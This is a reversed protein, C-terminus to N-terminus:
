ILRLWAGGSTDSLQLLILSLSPRCWLVSYRVCTTPRQISFKGVMYMHASSRQCLSSDLLQMRRNAQLTDDRAAELSVFRNMLVPVAATLTSLADFTWELMDRNQTTTRADFPRVCESM